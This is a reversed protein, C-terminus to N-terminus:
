KLWNNALWGLLFGAAFSALTSFMMYPFVLGVSIEGMTDGVMTM